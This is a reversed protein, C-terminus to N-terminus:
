KCYQKPEPKPRALAIIICPLMFSTINMTNESIVSVMVISTLIILHPNLQKKKIPLIATYLLLLWIGLGFVGIQGILSGIFTDSIGLASYQNLDDSFMKAYNGSSGIGHGFFSINEFSNSLGSLHILIGAKNPIASFVALPVLLFISKILINVRPNLITIGIFAQLLAGKSLCFVLGLASLVIAARRKTGSFICKYYAAIFISSFFHGLSIPDLFTSTMRERYGFAPEYFMYSLGYQDVPIGKLNFFNTLNVSKWFETSFEFVGFIFVISLILFLSNEIKKLEHELPKLQCFFLLVIIPAIIQRINALPNSYDPKLLILNLFLYTTFLLSASLTLTSRSSRAWASFSLAMVIYVPMDKLSFVLPSNAGLKILLLIAVSSFAAWAIFLSFIYPTIRTGQKAYMSTM